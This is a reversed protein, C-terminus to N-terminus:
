PTQVVVRKMGALRNLRKASEIAKELKDQAAQKGHTDSLEDLDVIHVRVGTPVVETYCVGGLVSVVVHKSKM